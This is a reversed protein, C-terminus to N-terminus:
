ECVRVTLMASLMFTTKPRNLGLGEKLYANQCQKFVVKLFRLQVIAKPDPKKGEDKQEDDNSLLIL